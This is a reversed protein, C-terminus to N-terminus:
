KVKPAKPAKPKKPKKLNWRKEVPPLYKCFVCEDWDDKMRRGCAPCKRKGVGLKEREQRRSIIFLIIMVILVVVGAIILILIVWFSIPVKKAIFNKFFTGAYGKDVVKIQLQHPQNDAKVHDVDFRIVYGQQIQRYIREMKQPTETLRKAFLYDGGTHDSIKAIRHLNQGAMLKLGVSYIPINKEDVIQNLQEKNYRSGNERGDSMLIVVKRKLPSEDIKRSAYVIADYLHPNGGMNKTKSIKEQLAEDKKEFEFIPKIEEGFTYVSLTDQPRLGEQLRIAAKLQQEMPEGEMMGNAAILLCYAIGQDTYQFGAVDLQSEIKEGDVFVQFNGRVLSLKPEHKRDCVSVFVEMYPFTDSIPQDIRVILKGKPAAFLSTTGTLVILVIAIALITRNRM